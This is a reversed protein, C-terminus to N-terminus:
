ESSLIVSIDGLDTPQYVIEGTHRNISKIRVYRVVQKGRSDLGTIKRYKAPEHGRPLAKLAPDNLGTKLLRTDGKERGATDISNPLTPDDAGLFPDMVAGAGAGQESIGFSISTCSVSRRVPVPAGPTESAFLFCSVKVDFKMKVLRETGATDEFNDDADFSESEVRAMFWYGKDTDIRWGREQPLMSAMLADIIQNMHQMHQTWVTVEYFTTFFQPSPVWLTEWVNKSINNVLLGGRQVTDDQTLDGVERSTSIQQAQLDDLPNLAASEQNKLGLRNILNQYGRDSSDLQRKIMIEGTRQNIGRGGLDQSDNQHIGRRVITILPLILSNNNDRLPKRAKAAWKEGGAFIIPVRKAPSAHVFLPISTNFLKFLGRDADEVGIAAVFAGEGSGAPQKQYGTPLPEVGHRTEPRANFRTIGAKEQQAEYRPSIGNSSEVDSYSTAIVAEETVDLPACVAGSIEVCATTVLTDCNGLLTCSSTEAITSSDIVLDRSLASVCGSFENGSQAALLACNLAANTTSSVVFIQEIQVNLQAALSSVSAELTSTVLIADAHTESSCASVCPFEQILQPDLFLSSCAFLSSESTQSACTQDVFGDLVDATSCVTTLGLVSTLQFQNSLLSTEIVSASLVADLYGILFAGTTNSLEISLGTITYVDSLLFESIESATLTFNADLKATALAASLTNNTTFVSADLNAYGSNNSIESTQEQMGADARAQLALTTNEHQTTSLVADALIQISHLSNELNSQELIADIRAQVLVASAEIQSTLLEADTNTRKIELTSNESEISQLNADVHCLTSLTSAEISQQTLVCQIESLVTSNSNEVTTESLAADAYASVVDTSNQQNTQILSLSLQVGSILTSVEELIMSCSSDLSPTVANLMSFEEFVISCSSDLSHTTVNSTSLEQLAMSCSTDLMSTGNLVSFEMINSSCSTNLQPTAAILTSLEELTSFMAADLRTVCSCNTNNNTGESLGADTKALINNTSQETLTCRIHGPPTPDTDTTFTGVRTYSVGTTATEPNTSNVMRVDSYLNTARKAAFNISSREAAVQTATLAATWIRVGRQSQNALQVGGAAGCLYLLDMEAASFNTTQQFHSLASTETGYYVDLTANTTGSLVFCLFIWTGTSSIVVGGSNFAGNYYFGEIENATGDGNADQIFGVANGTGTGFLVCTIPFVGSKDFANIKFWGCVTIATSVTIGAMEFHNDGVAGANASM